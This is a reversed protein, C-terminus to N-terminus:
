SVSLLPKLQQSGIKYETQCYDCQIEVVEGNDVISQIEDRGLTAMAGIVRQASCTCGAVVTEEALITHESEGMAFALLADPSGQFQDLIANFDSLGTLRNTLPELVDKTIEPLLQVVFGAAHIPQGDDDQVVGIKVVTSVQESQLFYSGFGGELGLSEDTSVVGQQLDQNFLVRTIALATTPGLEFEAASQEDVHILGRTLGKPHSDAMFSVGNHQKLTAQVRQNPAMTERVLISGVILQAFYNKLAVPPNQWEFITKVLSTCNVSIVRFAGDNTLARILKGDNDTM